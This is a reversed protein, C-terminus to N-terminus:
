IINLSISTVTRQKVEEGKEKKQRRYKERSTRRSKELMALGKKIQILQMADCEIMYKGNPQLVAQTTISILEEESSM